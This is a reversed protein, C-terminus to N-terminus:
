LPLRETLSTDVDTHFSPDKEVLDGGNGEVTISTTAASGVKLGIQVTLPVTSRVDADQSHSAFGDATVVLHYPNFPVNTFRFSGDSGTVTERRYGTVPNSIEIKAGAVVGGTEDKVVGEISGSNGLQARAPIAGICLGLIFALFAISRLSKLM